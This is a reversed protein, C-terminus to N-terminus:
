PGSARPAVRPNRTLRDRRELRRDLKAPKPKPTRSALVEGVDDDADSGTGRDALPMGGGVADLLRQVVRERPDVDDDVDLRPSGVAPDALAHEGGRERDRVDALDVVQRHELDVPM